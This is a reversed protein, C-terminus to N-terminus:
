VDCDAAAPSFGLAFFCFIIISLVSHYYKCFQGRQIDLLSTVSSRLVVLLEVAMSILRLSKQQQDMILRYFICLIIFGLVCVKIYILAINYVSKHDTISHQLVGYGSSADM